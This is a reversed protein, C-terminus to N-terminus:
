KLIVKFYITNSIAPLDGIIGFYDACCRFYENHLQDHVMIGETRLHILEDM